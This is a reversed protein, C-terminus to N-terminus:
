SSMKIVAWWNAPCLLTLALTADIEQMIVTESLRLGEKWEYMMMRMKMQIMMIMLLVRKMMIVSGLKM